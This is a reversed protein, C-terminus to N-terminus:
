QGAEETTATKSTPEDAAARMPGEFAALLQRQLGFADAAIAANSEGGRKGISAAVKSLGAIWTRQAGPATPAKALWRAFGPAALLRGAGYQAALAATTTLPAVAFGYGGGGLTAMGALAGGTNSSNAFKGAEKTGEAVKALDDLASRLEGNFLTRRAPDSMANWHTLFSSLSFADGAANQGGKNARGLESIITARVTSADEDPLAAMFSGLRANNNKSATDLSKMIVEGSKPADGRKGIIPVLVNDILQVRDRHESAATAYANAADSKGAAILGDAIDDEAADIVQGVRRELDSNRLGNDLFRDRLQTRMRKIGDVTWDGAIEGRLAKMEEIGKAGGPTKELEAINQDLAQTAKALPTTVDGGLKRAKAYLADVKTKSSKMWKQAGSLAAGGATELDQATGVSAAIADRAVKSQEGVAQGAKVIPAAGLPTQAAASSLRRITSGAVDAPIPAIKSGTQANLRDAAEIVPAGPGTARSRNALGAFLGGLAAGAGGGIAAGAASDGAGEGYGFGPIAGAAASERVVQGAARPASGIAGAGMSAINGVAEAATGMAGTRGRAQELEYREIDRERTYGEIPNNGTLAAGIAGGVGAAEDGLGAMVGQGALDMLGPNGQVSNAQRKESEAKLQAEYAAKAQSSDMATFNNGARAGRVALAIDEDKPLGYGRDQFWKKAAGVTFDKNGRNSNWFAVIEAEENPDLGMKSLWENRNFAGEPPKDMGFQIDSGTPVGGTMSPTNASGKEKEQEKKWFDIVFQRQADAVNPGIVRAPDVGYAEADARFRNRQAMYADGRGAMLKTLEGRLRRRTAETFTGGESSLIKTLEQTKNEVYSQSGAAVGEREGGLVGTTPDGIKAIATILFQDGALDESAKLATVFMPVASQYAKVETNSDYDGRLTAAKDFAQKDVERYEGRVQIGTRTNDRYAAADDRAERADGRTDPITFVPRPAGGGATVPSVEEFEAWPDRAM